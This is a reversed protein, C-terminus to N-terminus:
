PRVGEAEADSTRGQLSGDDVASRWTAESGLRVREVLGERRLQRLVRYVVERSVGPCTRELEARTFCGPFGDVAVEVLVTKAGRLSTVQGARQEFEQYAGRLVSFFYELWPNLDHSGERWGDSSLRLARSYDHRSKEFSRALSISRGIDFGHHYLGLLALLHSMRANGACFPHLQQFDFVLATVALLPHVQQDNLAERYSTCLEELAAPIETPLAGQPSSRTSEEARFEATENEQTRWEGADARGRLITEHLRRLFDPTVQLNPASAHILNLAQSYGRIEMEAQNRPEVSGAVLALLRDPAVSVGELRNSSEVTRVFAVARLARLLQAAQRAYLQHRGKSEGIEVMLRVIWVPLALARLRGNRFTM